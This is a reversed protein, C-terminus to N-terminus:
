GTTNFQALRRRNLDQNQRILEQKPIKKQPSVMEQCVRILTLLRNLHWYQCEFPIGLIAMRSYIVENTLVASNRKQGPIERITTATMKASIYKNINEVDESTLRRVWGYDEDSCDVRMCCFYYYMEQGTKHESSLFPKEFKQEWKSISYLSHELQLVMQPLLFFEGLVDDYGEVEPLRLTLM